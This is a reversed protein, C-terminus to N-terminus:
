KQEQTPPTILELAAAPYIQVSGPHKDSEVAYGEPTQETSYTGVIHGSWYSGKIKQVLDGINFKTKRREAHKEDELALLHAKMAVNCLAYEGYILPKSGMYFKWATKVHEPTIM